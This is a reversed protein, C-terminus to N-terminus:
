SKWATMVVPLTSKCGWLRQNISNKASGRVVEDWVVTDPVMGALYLLGLPPPTNGLMKFSGPKVLLKM